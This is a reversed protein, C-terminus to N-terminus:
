NKVGADEDNGWHTKVVLMSESFSSGIGRVLCKTGAHARSWLSEVAWCGEIWLRQMVSLGRGM